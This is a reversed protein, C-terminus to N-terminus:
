VPMHTANAYGCKVRCASFQLWPIHGFGVARRGHSHTAPPTRGLLLPRAPDSKFKM